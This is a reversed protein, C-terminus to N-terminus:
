EFMQMFLHAMLIKFSDTVQNVKNEIIDEITAFWKSWCHIM